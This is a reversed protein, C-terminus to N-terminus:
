LQITEQRRERRKMAHLSLGLCLMALMGISPEPVVRVLASAMEASAYDATPFIGPVDFFGEEPYGAFIPGVGFVASPVYGASPLTPESSPDYFMWSRNEGSQPLTTGLLGLLLNAPALDATTPTAPTGLYTAGADDFLQIVQDRTAFQFGMTTTYGGWGSSVSDYSQGATLNLDLWELGSNPDYVTDGIQQFALVSAGARTIALAIAMNCVLALPWLRKKM